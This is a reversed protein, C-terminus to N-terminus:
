QKKWKRLPDSGIHLEQLDKGGRWRSGIFGITRFLNLNNTGAYNAIFKEIGSMGSTVNHETTGLAFSNELLQRCSQTEANNMALAIKMVRRSAQNLGDMICPKRSRYINHIYPTYEYKIFVGYTKTTNNDYNCEGYMKLHESYDNDTNQMNVKKSGNFTKRAIEGDDTGATVTVHQQNISELIYQMDPQEINGVGKYFIVVYNKADTVNNAWEQYKSHSYFFRAGSTPNDVDNTHLKEIKAFPMRFIQIFDGLLLEPWYERLLNICLFRGVTGMYDADGMLLIRKYHLTAMATANNYQTGYKLGLMRVITQNAVGIIATEFTKTHTQTMNHTSAFGYDCISDM